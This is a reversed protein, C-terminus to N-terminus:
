DGVNNFFGAFSGRARMTTTIAGSGGAGADFSNGDITEITDGNVSAIICMHSKATFYGVDGPKPDRTIKKMNVITNGGGWASADGGGTKVAWTAFIGCWSVLGNPNPKDGNNTGYKLYKIVQKPFSPMGVSFIETLTEWGKRVHDGTAEDVGGSANSFVTGIKSRAANVIASRVSSVPAPAPPEEGKEVKEAAAPKDKAGAGSEAQASAPGGAPAPGVETTAPTEAETANATGAAPPAATGREAEDLSQLTMPGALGDAVLGRAQQFAVIGGRTKPGMIGDAVGCEYGLKNLRSQLDALDPGGSVIKRQVAQQQVGGGGSGGKPAMQDLLGAASEGRVVTDAVADAHQEYRDGSQGVGGSLSVGARQQVVHAAEHAATHLDPAKGFVVHNGTAYADAGMSASAERAAPGAHSQVGGVDHHGFSRQITDLYPLSGGGGAIGRAAAAHVDGSPNGQAQVPAWDAPPALAAQQAEFGEAAPPTRRQRQVASAAPAGQTPASDRSTSTQPEVQKM